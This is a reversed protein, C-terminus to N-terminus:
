RRKAWDVVEGAARLGSLCAGEMFGQWSYFSDTHEGAFFLSGVPTAANGEITTFYGPANNTYSGLALPNRSWNELFALPNGRGDRTALAATGPWIRDLDALFADAEARTRNPDLRAGRDGGSYDTLVGREGFRANVPNTEWTCQHNPLDSYSEGNGAFREYWPRGRFGIMMKSNTGYDFNAIAYRKDAPLGLSADLEVNRLVSFPLTLVVAAHTREVIRGGARLSLQIRGDALRRARVLEHEYAFRPGIARALGACIADNGEVVHFREDSFQGFPSFKSRNDAKAFFLFALCSQRDTERGYEITYAVDLVARILPGAGRSALYDRLTTRDLLRDYDNSSAATPGNSLKNLDARMAPVFARFEDVVQAESWHRGGFYFFEDGALTEVNELKLGFRNAYGRMTTHGTDILEGGREAVQGPFVGRLSWCRGGSRSAAEYLQVDVGRALLADACALGALGAGVIAVGGSGATQARGLAPLAVGAAAAGAAAFLRRRGSSGRRLAGREDLAGLVEASPLGSAEAHFAAAVWRSVRHMTQSRAM